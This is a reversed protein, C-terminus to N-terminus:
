DDVWDILLLDNGSRCNENMTKFIQNLCEYEATWGNDDYWIMKWIMSTM